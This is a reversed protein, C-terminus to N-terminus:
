ERSFRGGAGTDDVIDPTSDFVEIINGDITDRKYIRVLQPVKSTDTFGASIVQSTTGDGTYTGSIIEAGAGPDVFSLNGAGDTELVQGASGDATPGLLTAGRNVIAVQVGM